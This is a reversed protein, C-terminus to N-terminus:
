QGAAKVGGGERGGEQVLQGRGQRVDGIVYM